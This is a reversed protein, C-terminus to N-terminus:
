IKLLKKYDDRVVKIYEGDDVYSRLLHQKEGNLIILYETDYLSLAKGDMTTILEIDNVGVIYDKIDWILRGDSVRLKYPAVKLGNRQVFEQYHELSCAINRWGDKRSCHTYGGCIACEAM